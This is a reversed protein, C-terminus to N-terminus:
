VSLVLKNTCSQPDPRGTTKTAAQVNLESTQPLWMEERDPMSKPAKCYVPTPVATRVRGRKCVIEIGQCIIEGAYRLLLVKSVRHENCVTGLCITSAWNSAIASSKGFHIASFSGGNKVASVMGSVRAQIVFIISLTEKGTASAHRLVMASASVRSSRPFIM